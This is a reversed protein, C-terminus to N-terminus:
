KKKKNKKKYFSIGKDHYSEKHRLIYRFLEMDSNARTASTVSVVLETDGVIMKNTYDDLSCQHKIEIKFKGFQLITEKGAASPIGFAFGVVKKM